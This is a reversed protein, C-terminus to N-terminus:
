EHAKVYRLDILFYVLHAHDIFVYTEIQTRWEAKKSVKTSM